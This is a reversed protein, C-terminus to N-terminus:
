PWLWGMAAKPLLTGNFCMYTGKIIYQWWLPPSHHPWHFGKTAWLTLYISDSDQLHQDCIAAASFSPHSKPTFISLPISFPLFSYPSLLVSPSLSLSLAMGKVWGLIPLTCKYNCVRTRWRQASFCKQTGMKCSSARNLKLMPCKTDPLLPGRLGYPKVKWLSLCHRHGVRGTAWCQHRWELTVKEAANVTSRSVLMTICEKEIVCCLEWIRSCNLLYKHLQSIVVLPIFRELHGRLWAPQWVHWRGEKGAGWLCLLQNSTPTGLYHFQSKFM